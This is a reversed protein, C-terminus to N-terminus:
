KLRRVFKLATHTESFRCVKVDTWASANGAFMVQAQTIHKVGRPYVIWLAGRDKLAHKLRSLSRLKIPDDIKVVVVDYLRDAILSRDFPLDEMWEKDVFGLAAMGLDPKAGLKQLLPKPEDM